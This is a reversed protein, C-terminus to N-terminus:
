TNTIEYGYRRAHENKERHLCIGVSNNVYQESFCHAQLRTTAMYLDTQTALSNHM